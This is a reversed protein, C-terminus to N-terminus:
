VYIEKDIKKIKTKNKNIHNKFKSNANTILQHKKAALKNKFNVSSAYKNSMNRYVVKLKEFKKTLNTLKNKTKLLEDQNKTIKM